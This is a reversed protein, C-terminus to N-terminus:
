ILETVKLWFEVLKASKTNEVLEFADFNFKYIEGDLSSLYEIMRKLVQLTFYLNLREDYAGSFGVYIRISEHFRPEVPVDKSHTAFLRIGGHKIALKPGNEDEMLWEQIHDPLDNPNFCTFAYFLEKYEKTESYKTERLLGRIKTISIPTTMDLDFRQLNEVQVVAQTSHGAEMYFLEQEEEAGPIKRTIKVAAGHFFDLQDDFAQHIGELTDKM